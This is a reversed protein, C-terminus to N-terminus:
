LASQIIYVGKDWKMMDPSEEKTGWVLCAQINESKMVSGGGVLM